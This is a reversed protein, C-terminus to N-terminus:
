VASRDNSPGLRSLDSVLIILFLMGGIMDVWPYGPDRISSPIVTVVPHAPDYAIQISEGAHHQAVFNYADPWCTFDFVSNYSEYGNGMVSYTYGLLPCHRDNQGTWSYRTVNVSASVILAETVPWQRVRTYERSAKLELSVAHFCFYVVLM